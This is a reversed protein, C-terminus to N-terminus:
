RGVLNYPNYSAVKYAKVNKSGSIYSKSDSFKLWISILRNRENKKTIKPRDAEALIKNFREIKDEASIIHGLPFNRKIADSLKDNEKNYFHYVGECFKEFRSNNAKAGKRKPTLSEKIADLLSEPTISWRYNCFLDYIKQELDSDINNEEIYYNIYIGQRVINEAARKFTELNSERSLKSTIESRTIKVASKIDFKALRM